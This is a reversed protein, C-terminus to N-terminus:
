YDIRRGLCTARWSQVCYVTLENRNRVLVTRNLGGSRQFPRRLGEKAYTKTRIPRGGRSPPLIYVRMQRTSQLVARLASHDRLDFDGGSIVADPFAAALVPLLHGGVFGTAGTVLIRKIM